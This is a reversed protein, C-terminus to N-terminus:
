AVVRFYLILAVAPMIYCTTFLSQVANKALLLV